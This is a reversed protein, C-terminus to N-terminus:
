FDGRFKVIFLELFLLGLAILAFLGAIEKQKRQNQADTVGADEALRSVDRVAVDSEEASLLNAAITFGDYKYVGQDDYFGDFPQKSPTEEPEAAAGLPSVGTKVNLREINIRGTLTDIMRKWFVPYSPELAFTGRDDRIGYFLTQGTGVPLLSIVPGNDDTAIALTTGFPKYVDRETVDGFEISQVLSSQGSSTLATAGGTATFAVPLLGEYNITQTQSQAVIVAGRGNARVNEFTDRLTRQVLLNTDLGAIIVLDHDVTTLAPPNNIEIELNVPSTDSISQLAYYFPRTTIKEDNTIILVRFNFRDSNAITITNDLPFDDNPQLEVETVGPPTQITVYDTSGPGLPVDQTFDEASVTAVISESGFNKIGIRTRTDDVSMSVFGVNQVDATGVPQLTIAAGTAAISRVAAKYDQQEDTERFDSIITVVSDPGEVYQRAAIIAAYLNTETSGPELADILIRADRETIDKGILVPRNRVLIITNQRALADKAHNIAQDWRDDRTQMSASADIVIVSNGILETSSVTLFPQLAAAVLIVLILLQLFFVFDRYLYRLFSNRIAKGKDQLLFMLSPITQNSPKPRILYLILFPALIWFWHKLSPDLFFSSWPLSVM